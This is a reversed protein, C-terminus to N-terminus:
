GAGKEVCMVPGEDIWGQAVMSAIVARDTAFRHNSDGFPRWARYLPVQGSPYPCAGDPGVKDAFFPLGELAWKESKNVVYCEARDRTFFHSDPGVGPIGNFRYVVNGGGGICGPSVVVQFGLATRKWGAIGGTDLTAIEGADATYFYHDLRANYFEVVRGYATGPPTSFCAYSNQSVNLFEGTQDLLAASEVRSQLTPYDVLAYSRTDLLLERADITPFGLHAAYAADSMVRARLQPATMTRHLVVLQPNQMPLPDCRGALPLVEFTAEFNSIVHGQADSFRATLMYTGRALAGLEVPAARSCPPAVASATGIVSFTLHNGTRTYAVPITCEPAFPIYSSWEIYVEGMMNGQDVIERYPNNINARITQAELISPAICTIAVLALLLYKRIAVM